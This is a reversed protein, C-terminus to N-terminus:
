GPRAPSGPSRGDSRLFDEALIAWRVHDRWRGGVKLYRESYGERRFGLGEVLRMSAENDPQVNAELRHLGLPGFMQRMVLRLGERLYGRRAYPELAYYGLYGSRFNGLFIQSVNVVGVVADDEIRCVLFCATDPRRCRRLYATFAVDDAPAQAWRGHLRRSARVRDLLEARDRAAPSRLYVVRGVEISRRM